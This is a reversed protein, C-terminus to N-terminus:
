SRPNALAIQFKQMTIMVRRVVFPWVGRGFRVLLYGTLVFIQARMLIRLGAVFIRDALNKRKWFSDVIILSQKQLRNLASLRSYYFKQMELSNVFDAPFLDAYTTRMLKVAHSWMKTSIEFNSSSSSACGASSLRWVGLTEPIFCAGYKLALVLQIFGDSFAGMEPIFGGAEHFAVRNYICTNGTVWSERRRFWALAMEPSVYNKLKAVNELPLINLLKGSGADIVKSKASCFGALPFRELLSISKEYFGPLIWDDAAVSHVFRGSALQLGRNYSIVPGQNFENPYVHINSHARAFGEIVALSDDTSGDDIIIVESPSYSQSLISNLAQPLFHAHNYNAMVVSLNSESM